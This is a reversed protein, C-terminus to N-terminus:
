RKKYELSIAGLEDGAAFSAEAPKGTFSLEKREVQYGGHERAAEIVVTYTGSKVPKGQNDKGDWKLTYSGPPRTATSVTRWLDTGDSASRTQDDHYWVRLDSLYRPKEAWLAITRVPMHDADEVWVAVYPRRYRFDDIRPLALNITLEFNPDWMGAAAKAQPALSAAVYRAGGFGEMRVNSWGRSTVRSGDANVLLYQVGPMSAAMRESEAVPLVSFATALAGATEADRAYVTSSLVHGAPQATRPDILHSYFAGPVTGSAALAFGRRYGGSTAVAGNNVAVYEMPADNEASAKPDAIAIMQTM